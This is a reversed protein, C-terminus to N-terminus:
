LIVCRNRDNKCYFHKIAGRTFQDFDISYSLIKKTYNYYLNNILGNPFVNVFLNRWKITFFKKLLGTNTYIQTM